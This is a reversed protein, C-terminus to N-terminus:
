RYQIAKVPSVKKILMTPIILTIFCVILTIVDVLLVQWWVIFVSAKSIYYAEENLKIFGTKEQIWCLLLGTITGIIIGRIAIFTTNYLFVKQIMWNSSGLAKLIGTMRTRELVLIILCTIMNVVAVIMMIAILLNKIQGQLNLWDFIAPFIERISKSYWGQPLGEYTKNAISDTLRYDKLFIEYGGIQTRDWNNLRRILNIDCIAFNKDFEEIGSKYIGSVFLKRTSKSGDAKFFFVILSDGSKINLQKATYASIDIGKSYGSDVFNIWHGSQLFPQLRTFNFQNDVGKLLISEISTKYKLIASKTAYREVTEIEKFSYLYSEITDSQQIPYEEAITVKNELNQLVRIHGWFSFVKKSIEHQFGNVFSLAVIMVAVSLSTAAIALRIIFRSFTQKNKKALRKAIFFPLNM